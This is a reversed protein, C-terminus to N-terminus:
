HFCWKTHGLIKVELQLKRWLCTAFNLLVHSWNGSTYVTGNCWCQKLLPIEDFHHGKNKYVGFLREGGFATKSRFSQVARLRWHKEGVFHCKPSCDFGILGYHFAESKQLRIVSWPQAFRWRRVFSNMAFVLQTMCWHTHPQPVPSFLACQYDLAHVKGSFKTSGTKSLQAASWPECRWHGMLKVCHLDVEHRGKCCCIRSVLHRGIFFRKCRHSLPLNM